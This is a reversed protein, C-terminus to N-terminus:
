APWFGTDPDATYRDAVPLASPANVRAPAGRAPKQAYPNPGWAPPWGDPRGPRYTARYETPPDAPATAPMRAAREDTGNKNQYWDDSGM